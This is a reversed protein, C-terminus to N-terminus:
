TIHAYGFLDELDAFLCWAQEQSYFIDNKVLEPHFTKIVISTHECFM